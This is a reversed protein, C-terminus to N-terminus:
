VKLVYLLEAFFAAVQYLMVILDCVLAGVACLVAGLMLHILANATSNSRSIVSGTPMTVETTKDLPSNHAMNALNHISKVSCYRRRPYNKQTVSGIM